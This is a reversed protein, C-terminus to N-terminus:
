DPDVDQASDVGHNDEMSDDQIPGDAAAPDQATKGEAKLSGPQTNASGTQGNNEDPLSNESPLSGESDGAATAGEVQTPTSGGTQTNASGTEPSVDPADSQAFAGATPLSLLASFIVANLTKM